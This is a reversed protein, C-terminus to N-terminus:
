YIAVVLHNRHSITINHGLADVLAVGIGVQLRAIGVLVSRLGVM